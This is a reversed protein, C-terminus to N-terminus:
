LPSLAGVAKNEAHNGGYAVIIGLVIWSGPGFSM